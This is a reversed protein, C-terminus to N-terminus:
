MRVNRVSQQCMSSWHIGSVGALLHDSIPEVNSKAPHLAEEAGSHLGLLGQSETHLISPHINTPIMSMFIIINESPLHLVIDKM